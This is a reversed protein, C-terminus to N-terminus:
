AGGVAVGGEEGVISSRSSASRFTLFGGSHTGLIFNQIKCLDEWGGVGQIQRLFPDM